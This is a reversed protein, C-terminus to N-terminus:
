GGGAAYARRSAEHAFQRCRHASEPCDDSCKDKESRDITDFYSNPVMEVNMQRAFNEAGEGGLLVHPSKEMVLRALSIPNKVSKILTVAGNSLDKGYMISADLEHTGASTYTAGKGANFKPDDELLKVVSEVADLSTGGDELIKKGNFGKSVNKVEIM